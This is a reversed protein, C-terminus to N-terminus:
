NACIGLGRGECHDGCRPGVGNWRMVHSFWGGKDIEVQREATYVPAM